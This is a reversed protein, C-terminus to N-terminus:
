SLLMMWENKIFTWDFKEVKERANKSLLEVETPNELLREICRTMALVDKDPVLLAETAHEVLFPIGGVNTTVVPLGLAMAEMLSVPTNDFHTTNIFVDFESALKIWEKKPLGGTFQVQIGLKEAYKQTESLSGDKDPGVMCLSASPYRKKLESIVEVAMKPNYVKAFARVWLLKPELVSRKKHIYDDIEITNPIFLLNGYGQLEFAVKLYNSPAVNRYAYKFILQSFFPSKKLRSPLDGGHLIPIYKIKLIRALQSVFFAYWFATTSYTDILVYDVYRHKIVALLMNMLRFFSNKKTSATYVELGEQRLLQSLTDVTTKNLGKNSLQNGLYLIKKLPM